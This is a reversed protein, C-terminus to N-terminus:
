RGNTEIQNAVSHLIAPIRLLLEASVQASFGSGKSGNFVLLIVGEAETAERATTCEEDYKGPGIM